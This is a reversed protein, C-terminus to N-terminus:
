EAFGRDPQDDQGGHHEEEGLQNVIKGTVSDRMIFGKRRWATLYREREQEVTVTEWRPYRKEWPPMYQAPIREALLKDVRARYYDADPNNTIGPRVDREFTDLIAGCTKYAQEWSMSKGYVAGGHMLTLMISDTLAQVTWAKIIDATDQLDKAHQAQMKALYANVPKSM